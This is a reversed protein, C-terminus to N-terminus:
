VQGLERRLQQKLVVLVDNPVRLPKVFAPDRATVPGDDPFVELVQSQEKGFDVKVAVEAVGLAQKRRSRVPPRM